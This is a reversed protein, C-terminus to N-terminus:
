MLTRAVVSAFICVYYKLTRIWCDAKCCNSDLWNRTLLVGVRPRPRPRPTKKGLKKKKQSKNAFLNRKTSFSDTPKCRFIGKATLGSTRKRTVKCVEAAVNTNQNVVQESCNAVAVFWKSAETRLNKSNIQTSEEASQEQFWFVSSTINNWIFKGWTITRM